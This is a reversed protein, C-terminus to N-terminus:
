RMLQISHVNDGAVSVNKLRRLSANKTLSQKWGGRTHPKLVLEVGPFAAIMCVVEAVEEWFTTFNSKRLFIVVKLQSGSRTLPSAPSLEALKGLWEDCYRPS